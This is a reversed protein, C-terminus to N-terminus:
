RLEADRHDRDVPIRDGASPRKELWVLQVGNSEDSRHTVYGRGRYLCLASEADAGTYLEFCEVGAFHSELADM